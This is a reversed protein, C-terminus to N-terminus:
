VRDNFSCTGSFFVYIEEAACHMQTTVYSVESIVYM